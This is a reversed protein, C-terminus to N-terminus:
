GKSGSGSEKLHAERKIIERIRKAEKTKDKDIAGSLMDMLFKKRMWPSEIMLSKTHAKCENYRIYLEKPNLSLADKIGCRRAARYINSVNKSLKKPNRTKKDRMEMNLRILARYSHCRDLWLKVPPSFEYHNAYLKQCGKEAKLM